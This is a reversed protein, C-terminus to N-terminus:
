LKVAHEPKVRGTLLYGAAILNGKLRGVRDVNRDGLLAGRFNALVNSVVLKMGFRLPMTGKLILYIPNIVQSYGLRKGASRAGQAGMHVGAFANAHVIRGYKAYQRTYDIDEQWGYLPLREDFRISPDVGIRVATNCGYGGTTDSLRLPISVDAQDHSDVIRVAEEYAIGGKGVGDALMKGTAVVIEPHDQFLTELHRVFHRSPVYDDDAFIALDAGQSSLTELARNRQCCSGASGIVVQSVLGSPLEAIDESGTISIVCFDLRRSQAEWHHLVRSLLQARGRSAIILAIKM